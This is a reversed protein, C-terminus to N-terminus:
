FNIQIRTPIQATGGRPPPAGETIGTIDDLAHDYFFSAEDRLIVHNAAIRGYIQSNGRLIVPNTPMYISGVISSNNFDWLFISSLFAPDPYIRIRWPEIYKPEEPPDADCVTAVWQNLWKKRHPDGLKNTANPESTCTYDSGIWSGTTVLDYAVFLLLQSNTKLEIASNSMEFSKADLDFWQRAKMVIKVNGNIILRSNTLKFKDDVRYIGSNLTVVSNNTINLDGGAYPIGFFEYCRVRIPNLSVTVGSYTRNGTYTTGPIFSPESPPTPMVISEGASLRVQEVEEASDGTVTVSEANSPFYLYAQKTAFSDSVVEWSSELSVMGGLYHYIADANNVTAGAYGARSARLFETPNAALALAFTSYTGPIAVAQDEFYADAGFYVGEIGFWTNMAQTGVNIPYKLASKPAKEWRGVFNHGEMRFLKNAFIAYQGKVLSQLSMQASMQYSTEGVTVTITAQFETTSVTPAVGTTLDAVTVNLTAGNIQYNTLLVGDALQARWQTALIADPQQFINALVERSIALGEAAALRARAAEGMSRGVLVSHDRSKVFSTGATAAVGLAFLAMLMAVGRRNRFAVRSRNSLQILQTNRM